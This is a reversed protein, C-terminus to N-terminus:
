RKILNYPKIGARRRKRRKNKAKAHIQYVLFRNNIKKFENRFIDIDEDRYNNIIIRAYRDIMRNRDVHWEFSNCMSVVKRKLQELECEKSAKESTSSHFKIELQDLLEEYDDFIRRNSNFVYSFSKKVEAIDTSRELIDMHLKDDGNQLKAIFITNLKRYAIMLEDECKKYVEDSFIDKIKAVLQLIHDHLNIAKYFWAVNPNNLIALNKKVSNKDKYITEFSVLQKLNEKTLQGKECFTLIATKAKELNDNQGELKCSVFHAAEPNIFNVVVNLHQRILNRFNLGDQQALYKYFPKPITMTLGEDKITILQPSLSATQTTIVPLDSSCTPEGLQPFNTTSSVEPVSQITQTGNRRPPHDDFSTFTPSLYPSSQHGLYNFNLSQFPGWGGLNVGGAGYKRRKYPYPYM